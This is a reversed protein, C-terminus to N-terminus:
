VQLNYKKAVEKATLGDLKKFRNENEALWLSDRSDLLEEMLAEYEMVDLLVSVPKNRNLIYIPGFESAQHALGAPNHRMDTFSKITQTNLM